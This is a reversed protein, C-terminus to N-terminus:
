GKQTSNKKLVNAALLALADRLSEDAVGGSLGRAKETLAPDAPKPAPRASFPTQGEAFGSPATQTIQIRSVASYGYCANVRERLKPEQMQLVPANAGTTLVTLTAGIGDRPYSVKVPRAIAALEPGVIEDWHTLVRSVAFGRSEGAVRVPDRMLSFAPQFGRMRREGHDSAKAVAPAKGADAKDTM